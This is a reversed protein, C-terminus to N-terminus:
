DDVFDTIHDEFHKQNENYWDVFRDYAEQVWVSFDDMSVNAILFSGIPTTGYKEIFLTYVSDAIKKKQVGALWMGFESAARQEARFAAMIGLDVLRDIAERMKPALRKSNLWATLKPRGYYAGVLVLVGVVLVALWGVVTSDSM